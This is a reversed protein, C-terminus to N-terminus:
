KLDSASFTKKNSSGDQYKEEVTLRASEGDGSVSYSMPEDASDTRWRGPDSGWLVRSGEIKCKYKWTSGDDPRVYSVKVEDGVVSTKMISPSKGMVLSIGAKCIQSKSFTPEGAVANGEAALAGLGVCLILATIAKMAGGMEVGNRKDDLLLIMVIKSLAVQGGRIPITERRYVAVDDRSKMLQRRRM